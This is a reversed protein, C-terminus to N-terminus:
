ILHNHEFGLNVYYKKLREIYSKIFNDSTMQEIFDISIDYLRCNIGRSKLYGSIQPIGLLPMFCDAIPPIILSFM